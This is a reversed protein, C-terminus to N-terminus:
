NGVYAFASRYISESVVSDRLNQFKKEHDRKRTENEKEEISLYYHSGKFVVSLFSCVIYM